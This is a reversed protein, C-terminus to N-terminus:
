FFNTKRTYSVVRMKAINLRMSNAICWDSVSNVDSQLLLCDHTSNIVHFIKVDDASIPLKCYHVSSCLDHTFLNFFFPGLVPGQLMSSKVQFTQSLTGCVRVRSLRNTLYSHFCSVHADFFRFSCLKHLLV